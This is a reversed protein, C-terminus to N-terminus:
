HMANERRTSEAAQLQRREERRTSERLEDAAQM